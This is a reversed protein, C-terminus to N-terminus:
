HPDLQFWGSPADQQAFVIDRCGSYSAFTRAVFERSNNNESIHAIVLQRLGPLMAMELFAMAQENNLHGWDSGVRRKLSPPYPGSALMARDHNAELILGDCHSYADLVHSTICGLDTLIGLKQEGCQFTFQAPERADHPVAVPQICIDGISFAGYGEILNAQCSGYDRALWTGPTMFVPLDFRRALPGVGKSHDSHEHTVLIADLSAPDLELVAMRTLLERLTFGCDVLLRAGASCVLTANGKSGSGLTAFKLSM